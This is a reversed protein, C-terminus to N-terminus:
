PWVIENAKFIPGDKCVMSYGSPSTTTECVCSLCVGIGCAMRKEMLVYLNINRTKAINRVKKMMPTPGCVFAVVRKRSPHESLYQKYMASVFGNAYNNQPVLQGIDSKRDTSVFIDRRNVGADTLDDVYIHADRAKADFGEDIHDIQARAPRLGEQYKLLGITEIGIFAKVAVGYYRLGQVLFILPAMGVGGGIVHVEDVGNNIMARIDFPKGLPGIMEVQKGSALKSMENTGKGTQLVKYFVDFANPLATHMVMALSPPLKMRCLYDREKFHPYFARHIGFPRKLYTHPATAFSTKFEHWPVPQAGDLPKREATDMMIFQGPVIGTLGSAEFRLKYYLSNNGGVQINNKVEATFTAIKTRHVDNHTTKSTPPCLNYYKKPVAEACRARLEDLAVFFGRPWKDARSIARWEDMKARNPMILVALQKYQRDDLKRLTLASKALHKQDYFFFHLRHKGDRSAFVAAAMSNHPMSDDVPKPLSFADLEVQHKDAGIFQWQDIQLLLNVLALCLSHYTRRNRDKDNRAKTIDTDTLKDCLHRLHHPLLGTATLYRLRENNANPNLFATAQLYQYTNDTSKKMHSCTEPIAAPRSMAKSRELVFYRDRHRLLDPSDKKRKSSSDYLFYGSSIERYGSSEIATKTEWGKPDKPDLALTVRCSASTSKATHNLLDGTKKGKVKRAHWEANFDFPMRLWAGWFESFGFYDIDVNYPPDLFVHTAEHGFTKISDSWDMEGVFVEALGSTFVSPKQTVRIAPLMDNLEQKCSLFTNLRRAFAHMVNTEKRLPPVYFRLAAWGHSSTPQNESFMQMKSCSYLAATFVYQLAEKYTPSEIRNIAALVTAMGSLNRGTFLQSHTSVPPRRSAAHIKNNPYWFQPKSQSAHHQNKAEQPSLPRFISSRCHGCVIKAAIPTGDQAPGKWLIFDATATKGCKHCRLTYTPDVKPSVEAFVSNFAAQLGPISLPRILVRTMFASMPNLDTAVVRASRLLAAVVPTGAGCFPDLIVDKATVGEFIQRFGTLPKRGWYMHSRAIRNFLKSALQM